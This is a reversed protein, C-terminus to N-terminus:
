VRQHDEESCSTHQLPDNDSIAGAQTFSGKAEDRSTLVNSVDESWALINQTSLAVM